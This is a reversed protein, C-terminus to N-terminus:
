DILDHTHISHISYTTLYVFTALPHSLIQELLGLTTGCCHKGGFINGTAPQAACPASVLRWLSARQSFPPSLDQCEHSPRSLNNFLVSSKPTYPNYTSSTPPIHPLIQISISYGDHSSNNNPSYSDM